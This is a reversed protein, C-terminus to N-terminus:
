GRAHTRGHVVTQPPAEPHVKSVSWVHSCAECRYYDVVSGDSSGELWRTTTSHCEPCVMPM